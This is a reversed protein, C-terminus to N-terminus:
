DRTKVEIPEAIGNERLYIVAVKNTEKLRGPKFNMEFISQKKKETKEELNKEGEKNKATEKSLFKM